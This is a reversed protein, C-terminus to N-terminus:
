GLTYICLPIIVEPLEVPRFPTSLVQLSRTVNIIPNFAVMFILPSLTDGQFVGRGCATSLRIQGSVSLRTPKSSFM